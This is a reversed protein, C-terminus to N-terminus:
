KNASNMEGFFESVRNIYGSGVAGHTPLTVIQGCRIEANPCSGGDYNVLHWDPKSLPHVPTSYWDALEVNAQRAEDLVRQKDNVLMPYRVFVIDSDLPPVPHSVGVSHIRQRYQDVVWRSHTATSDLQCLKRAMRRQTKEPMRLAFDDAVRGLPNYSGEAVGLRSLLHYLSRVRWFLAPRFLLQFAFYQVELRFQRSAAPRGYGRYEQVVADQLKPDNIVAAGGIGAAVPKGWEFSYFSAAGFKGVPISKHTSLLTHCCDEIVPIGQEDALKVIKEIDAPIGYTHQVVIARTRSTLRSVLHEPEMNFGSAQIDVYLPSAGTAMIAEPVAICTFAQTAVEDGPGVNLAKLLAYLAVRGRYYTLTSYDCASSAMLAKERM